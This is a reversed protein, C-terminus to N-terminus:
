YCTFTASGEIRGISPRSCELRVHGEVGPVGNVRVGNAHLDYDLVRCDGKTFAVMRNEGPVRALVLGPAAIVLETDEAEDRRYLDAGYLGNRMASLCTDPRLTWTKLQGGEAHFQGTAGGCGIMMSALAAFSARSSRRIV